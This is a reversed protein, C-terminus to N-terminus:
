PVQLSSGRLASRGRPASSEHLDQPMPIHLKRHLMKNMFGGMIEQQSRRFVTHLGAHPDAVWTLLTDSNTTPSAEMERQVFAMSVQSQRSQSLRLLAAGRRADNPPHTLDDNTQVLHWIGEAKSLRQTPPTWPQHTTLRDKTVIAGEYPGAGAFIFYNPANLETAEMMRVASGFDPVTQLMERVVWPFNRGGAEHAALNELMTDNPLRANSNVSYAGPRMGTHIGLSGSMAIFNAIPRGGRTFVGEFMRGGAPMVGVKQAQEQMEMLDYDINRGHIVTGNPMAALLGTCGFSPADVASWMDSLVLRDFTVDSHDVTRVLDDYEARLESSLTAGKVWRAAIDDGLSKQYLVGMGTCREIIDQRYKQAFATWRQAPPLDLNIEEVPLSESAETHAHLALVAAVQLWSRM